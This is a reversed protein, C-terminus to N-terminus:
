RNFRYILSEKDISRLKTAATVGHGASYANKLPFESSM